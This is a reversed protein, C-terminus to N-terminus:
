DHEMWYKSVGSERHVTEGMMPSLLQISRQEALETLRQIPQDWAHMALSFTGCHVPMMTKGKVLEHVRAANDPGLHINGWSPHWAGIEIMTLDFGGFRDGIEAFSHRKAM